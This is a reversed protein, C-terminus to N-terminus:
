QAPSAAAAKTALLGCVVRWLLAEEPAMPPGQGAEAAELAAGPSRRLGARAAASARALAEPHLRGGADLARLM